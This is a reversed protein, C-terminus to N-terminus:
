ILELNLFGSFKLPFDFILPAGIAFRIFHSDGSGSNQGSNKMFCISVGNVVDVYPFINM